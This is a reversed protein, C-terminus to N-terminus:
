ALGVRPTEGELDIGSAFLAVRELLEVRKHNAGQAAAVEAAKFTFYRPRNEVKL